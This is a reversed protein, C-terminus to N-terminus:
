KNIKNYNKFNFDNIPLLKINQIMKFFYFIRSFENNWKFYCFISIFLKNFFVYLLYKFCLIINIYFIPPTFKYQPSPATYIAHLVLKKSM